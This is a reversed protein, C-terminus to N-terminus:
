KKFNLNGQRIQRFGEIMEDAEIPGIRCFREADNFDLDSVIGVSSLGHGIEVVMAIFNSACKVCSIHILSAHDQRAFLKANKTNYISGCVPCHNIFKLAERWSDPKKKNAPMM